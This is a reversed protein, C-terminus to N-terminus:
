LYKETERKVFMWLGADSYGYKEGVARYTMGKIFIDELMCKLDEPMRNLVRETEEIMLCLFYLERTLEDVKEVMELRKLATVSPNHSLPMSDFSVGKVGTEDYEAVELKTKVSEIDKRIKGLNALNSTFVRYDM